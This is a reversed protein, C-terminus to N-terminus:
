LVARHHARRLQRAAPPRRAHQRLAPRRAVAAPHDHDGIFEIFFVLPISRRRCAPRSCCASKFYAFFGQSKIGVFHYLVWVLIAMLVPLAIRANVPMQAIPIIEWINCVFIFSFLMLLFPTWSLGDPGMTQLIVGEEIFDVVSEGVNQVGTPVLSQDRGGIFFFVFVVVVSLWMLIVVKNVAFATGDLFIAPWEIVHSVPPFDLGLIVGLPGGQQPRPKLGPLRPLALSPPDGLVATRSPHGRPHVRPAAAGGLVRGARRLHRALIIGMRVVFGILVAAMLMALSIRAAWAMLAAAALFNLVVVGVAFASTLAGDVQWGIASIVILVAAVPLARRALDWAVDLEPAEGAM